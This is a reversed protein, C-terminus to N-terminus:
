GLVRLGQLVWKKCYYFKTLNSAVCLALLHVSISLLHLGEPSFSWDGSTPKMSQQSVQADGGGGSVLDLSDRMWPLHFEFGDCLDDGPGPDEAPV